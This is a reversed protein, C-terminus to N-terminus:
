PCPKWNNQNNVDITQIPTSDYVRIGIGDNSPTLKVGHTTKGDVPFLSGSVASHSGNSANYQTRGGWSWQLVGIAKQNQPQQVTGTFYVLYVEFNENLNFHFGTALRMQPSDNMKVIPESGVQIGGTASPHQYPDAGDLMWGNTKLMECTGNANTRRLDENVIQVLKLKSEGVNSIFPRPDKIFAEIDMGVVVPEFTCATLLYWSTNVIGDVCNHGQRVFPPTQDGIFLPKNDSTTDLEPVVENLTLSAQLHVDGSDYKVSITHSGLTTIVADLTASNGGVVNNGIKWEYTGGTSGSVVARLPVTAGLMGRQTTNDVFGQANGQSVANPSM